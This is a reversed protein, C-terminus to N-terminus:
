GVGKPYSSLLVWNGAEGFGEGRSTLGTLEAEQVPWPPESRQSHSHTGGRGYAQGLWVVSLQTLPRGTAGLRGRGFPCDKDWLCPPPAPCM